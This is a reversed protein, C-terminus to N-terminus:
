PAQVLHWARPRTFARVGLHSLTLGIGSDRRGSWPLRPSVRDCTNWYASGVDLQALIARARAESPTYVSATLGFRSDNMQSVATADDEVANIAVVPGFSEEQLLDADNPAGVVITPRLCGQGDTDGGCLVRGGRAVADAIQRELVPRQGARALPGIYTREDRPDGVVFAETVARMERLFEDHVSAHVYVREVSCCSQGTNYFAGDAVARAVRDIPADDCVYVADKGGLELQLPLMRGGLERSIAQGTAVSGTFFMADVDAQVLMRGVAADGVLTRFIGRPAGAEALRGEIELGTLTAIESPKYLVANGTLLAPIFVNGGVFYPYNWASVCGVVGLPDYSIEEIVGAAEHVRETALCRPLM